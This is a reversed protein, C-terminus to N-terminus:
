HLLFHGHNRKCVTEANIHVFAGVRAEPPCFVTIQIFNDVRAEVENRQTQESSCFAPFTYQCSIKDTATQGGQFGDWWDKSPGQLSSPHLTLFTQKFIIGDYRCGPYTPSTAWPNLWSIGRALYGSLDDTTESNEVPKGAFRRGLFSRLFQMSVHRTVLWIQFTSRIPGAALSIQRLRDSACSLYPFVCKM